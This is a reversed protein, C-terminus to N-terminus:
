EHITVIGNNGDVTIIQGNSVISTIRSIQTVAPIGFERAVISGHSLMGGRELVIAAALRFLPTWGPDTSRAILIEGSELKDVLPNMIIKVKGTVKGSSVGMGKIKNETQSLARDPIILSNGPELYFFTPVTDGAKQLEDKRLSILKFLYQNDVNKKLAIDHIETLTLMFINDDNEIINQQKFKYGLALINHRIEGFILSQMLRGHERMALSHWSQKLLWKAIRKNLFNLGELEYESAKTSYANNGNEIKSYDDVLQWFLDNREEFTPYVLMCENYCRSGFLEMFQNYIELSKGSLSKNLQEYNHNKLLEDLEKNNKIENALQSILKTSYTSVSGVGNLLKGFNLNNFGTQFKKLFVYLLSPFIMVLIDAMCPGSYKNEIFNFLSSFNQLLENVTSQKYPKKRLGKKLALLNEEVSLLHKNVRKRYYNIRIWFYINNYIKIISNEKRRSVNYPINQGIYNNFSAKLLEAQSYFNFVKYWNTLNYYIHGEHIATLNNVVFLTSNKNEDFKRYTKLQSKMYVTYFRDVVSYALPTLKEPFNETMNTNSFASINEGSITTVPRVQLLYLVDEKVCWEIDVPYNYLLEIELTKVALEQMVPKLNVQAEDLPISETNSRLIMIKQPTVEGSVLQEGLGAVWEVVLYDAINSVPDISFAVGAIDPEILQQVIVGIGPINSIGKEKSYELVAENYLGAWCKKINVILENKTVNLFTHLQGAMSNELGDENLASSRVAFLNNSFFESAEVISNTIIGPMEAKIIDNSTIKNPNLKNYKLFYTYAESTIVFGKPVNYGWGILENLRFAKGGVLNLKLGKEDLFQTYQTM